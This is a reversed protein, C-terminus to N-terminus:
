GDIPVEDLGTMADPVTVPVNYDFFMSTHNGRLEIVKSDLVVNGETRLVLLSEADIWYTGEERVNPPDQEVIRRLPSAGSGVPLFAINPKGRVFVVRTDVGDVTESEREEAVDFNIEDFLTVNFVAFHDNVFEVLGVFMKAGPQLDRFMVWEGVPAGFQDLFDPPTVASFRVWNDPLTGRGSGEVGVNTIEVTLQFPAGNETGNETARTYSDFEGPAEARASVIQSLEVGEDISIQFVGNLSEEVHGTMSSKWSSQSLTELLADKLFDLAAVGDADLQARTLSPRLALVALMFVSCLVTRAEGM